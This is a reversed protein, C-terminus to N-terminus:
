GWWSSSADSGMSMAEPEPEPEPEPQQERECLACCGTDGNWVDVGLGLRCDQESVEDQTRNCYDCKPEELYEYYDDEIKHNDSRETNIVCRGDEYENEELWREFGNDFCKKCRDYEM